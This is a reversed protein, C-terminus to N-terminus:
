RTTVEVRESGEASEAIRDLRPIQLPAFLNLASHLNPRRETHMSISAYAIATIGGELAIKEKHAIQLISYVFLGNRCELAYLRITVYNQVVNRQLFRNSTLRPKNENPAIITKSPYKIITWPCISPLQFVAISTIVNDGDCYATQILACVISFPILQVFPASPASNNNATTEIPMTVHLHPLLTFWYPLQM